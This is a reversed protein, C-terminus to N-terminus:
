RPADPIQCPTKRKYHRGGCDNCQITRKKRPVPTASVPDSIIPAEVALNEPMAYKCTRVNHGKMQCNSCRMQREEPVDARLSRIRRKKPRGRKAVVLPPKTFGDSILSHFPIPILPTTYVATLSETKYSPHIFNLYDAGVHNIAVAAHLCPKGLEQFAGCSCTKAELDVIRYADPRRSKVNIVSDSSQFLERRRGEQLTSNYETQFRKTVATATDRYKSFRAFRQKSLQEVFKVFVNLYSGNRLKEMASNMSEASNSTYIGYRPVPFASTAWTTTDSKMLYDYILENRDRIYSLAIAMGERTTAKVAHQIRGEVNTRFHKKVNQELHFMCISERIFPLIRLQANHMGKERDHMNVFHASNIEPVCVKLNLYFFTWQEEDETPVVAIALPVIQKEGDLVNAAMIMGGYQSRMHCADNVIVPFCSEAAKAAYGLCLFARYVIGNDRRELVYHTGENVTALKRLYDEIKEFSGDNLMEAQANLDHLSRWATCYPLNAGFEGRILNQVDKPKFVTLSEQHPRSFENVAKVKYSKMTANMCFPSHLMNLQKAKVSGDKQKYCTVRFQCRDEKVREDASLGVVSRCMAIFKSPESTHVIYDCNLKLCQSVFALRFASISDFVSGLNQCPDEFPIDMAAGIALVTLITKSVVIFHLISFHNILESLWGAPEIFDRYKRKAHSMREPEERKMM